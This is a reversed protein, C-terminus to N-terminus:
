LMVSGSPWERSDFKLCYMSSFILSGQQCAFYEDQLAMVEVCHIVDLCLPPYTLWELIQVQGLQSFVTAWSPFAKM